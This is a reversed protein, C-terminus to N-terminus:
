DNSYDMWYLDQRLNLFMVECYSLYNLLFTTTIRQQGDVLEFEDNCKLKELLITGIFYESRNQTMNIYSESDDLLKLTEQQDWDYDRQYLPIIIKSIKNNGGLIELIGPVTAHNAFFLDSVTRTKNEINIKM